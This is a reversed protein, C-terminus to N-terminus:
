YVSHLGYCYALIPFTELLLRYLDSQQSDLGWTFMLKEPMNTSTKGRSNGSIPLSFKKRCKFFFILKWDFKVTQTHQWLYFATISYFIIIYCKVDMVCKQFPLAWISIHHKQRRRSIFISIVVNSTMIFWPMMRLIDCFLKLSLQPYWWLFLLINIYQVIIICLSSM